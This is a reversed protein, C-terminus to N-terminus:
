GDSLSKDMVHRGSNQVKQTTSELNPIKLFYEERGKGLRAIKYKRERASRAIVSCLLYWASGILVQSRVVGLSLKDSGPFSM